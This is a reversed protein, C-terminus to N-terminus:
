AEKRRQMKRRHKNIERQLVDEYCRLAETRLSARFRKAKDDDKLHMVPSCSTETKGDRRKVNWNWVFVGYHYKECKPCQLYLLILMYYRPPMHYDENSISLRIRLRFPEDMIWNAQECDCEGFDIV